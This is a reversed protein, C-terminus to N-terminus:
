PDLYNLLIEGLIVWFQGLDKHLYSEPHNGDTAWLKGFHGTFINRRPRKTSIITTSPYDCTNKHFMGENNCLFM